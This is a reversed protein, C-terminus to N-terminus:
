QFFSHVADFEDPLLAMVLPFYNVLIMAINSESIAATNDSFKAWLALLAGCFIAGMLLGFVAGGLHNVWGLMMASATWKLLLALVAAVVMVGVLIIAFAVIRAVSESSIFPLQESLSVYYHGALFVGIIIGALSLVAKIIGIKLGLFTAGAIAVIIIIDLWNM